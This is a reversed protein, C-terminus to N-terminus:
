RAQGKACKEAKALLDSTKVDLAASIRTLCDITPSKKAREVMSIYTRHLGARFALEEQSLGRKSRFLRIQEALALRLNSSPMERAMFISHCLALM